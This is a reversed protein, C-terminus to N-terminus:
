AFQPERAQPGPGVRSPADRQLLAPEIRRLAHRQYLDAPQVLDERRHLAPLDVRAREARRLGDERPVGSEALEDVYAREADRVHVVADGRRPAVRALVGVDHIGRQLREDLALMPELGVRVPALGDDRRSCPERIGRLDFLGPAEERRLVKLLRRERRLAGELRHEVLERRGLRLGLRGRRGGEDVVAVQLPELRASEDPAHQLLPRGSLKGSVGSAGPASRLRHAARSAIRSTSGFRTWRPVHTSCSTRSSRIGLRTTRTTSRPPMSAISHFSRPSSPDISSRRRMWSSSTRSQSVASSTTLTSSSRATSADWTQVKGTRRRPITRSRSFCKSFADTASRRRTSSSRSRKLTTPGEAPFPATTRPGRRVVWTATRSQPSAKWNVISPRSAGFVAARSCPWRNPRAPNASM